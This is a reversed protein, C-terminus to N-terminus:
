KGEGLWARLGALARGRHSMANKTAAPLEGFTACEGEPIFLPDYGFGGEGKEGNAIVGEVAGDFTAVEDGGRALVLVCRFRASRGKGRAGVAALEELLKARNSADTAGEGSYRASYVGPAGGLADVELGSDDALVWVRDGLAASAGLAKLRANALFTTGTEAIEGVEPYARLDEVQQVLDGLVVAIEATKHANGTAVVLHELDM